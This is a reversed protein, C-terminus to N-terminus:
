KQETRLNEVRDEPEVASEAYSSMSVLALDMSRARKRALQKDVRSRAQRGRELCVPRNRASDGFNSFYAEMLDVRKPAVGVRRAADHRAREFYNPAANTGDLCWGPTCNTGHGRDYPGWSFHGTTVSRM